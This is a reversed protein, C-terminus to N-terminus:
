SSEDIVMGRHAIGGEISEFYPTLRVAQNNSHTTLLVSIPMIKGDLPLNLLNSTANQHSGVAVLLEETNM